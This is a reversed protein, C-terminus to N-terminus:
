TSATPRPIAATAAGVSCWTQQPPQPWYRDLRELGLRAAPKSVVVVACYRDLDLM